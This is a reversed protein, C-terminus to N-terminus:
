ERLFDRQFKNLCYFWKLQAKRSILLRFPVAKTHSALHNHIINIWILKVGQDKLLIIGIAAKLFYFSKNRHAKIDISGLFLPPDIQRKPYLESKLSNYRNQFMRNWKQHIIQVQGWWKGHFYKLKIMINKILLTEITLREFVSNKMIDLNKGKMLQIMLM